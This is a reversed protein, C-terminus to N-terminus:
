LAGSARACPIAVLVAEGNLGEEARFFEAADAVSCPLDAFAGPTSWIRTLLLYRKKVFKSQMIFAKGAAIKRAEQIKQLAGQAEVQAEQASQHAKALESEQDSIKRELSECKKVTDQLEQQVEGVRAEHKERAAQEKAARKQAEALSNKLTEVETAAGQKDELQKKVRDLEEEARELSQKLKSVKASHSTAALMSAEFCTLLSTCAKTLGSKASQVREVVTGM